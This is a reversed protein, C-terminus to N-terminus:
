EHKKGGNEKDKYVEKEILDYVIIDNSITLIDEAYKKRDDIYNDDLTEVGDLIRSENKSNNYYVKNTLFNGNAFVVTNNNKVDFIDHGLAYKNEINLMNSLTPLCDIM